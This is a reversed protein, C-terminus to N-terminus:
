VPPRPLAELSRGEGARRRRHIGEEAPGAPTPPREQWLLRVTRARPWLVLGRPLSTTHTCRLNEPTTHATQTPADQSPAGTNSQSYHGRHPRPARATCCGGSPSLLEPIRAHPCVPIQLATWDGHTRIYQPQLRSVNRVCGSQRKSDKKSNNEPNKQYQKQFNCNNTKTLALTKMALRRSPAFRRQM